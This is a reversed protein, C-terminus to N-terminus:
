CGSSDDSPKNHIIQIVTNIAQDLHDNVVMHEYHQRAEAIERDAKSLRVKTSQSDDRGRHLLREQLTDAKPPLIFIMVADPYATKAQIGGQVDIELLVTRGQSLCADVTDKPTGYFHGFVEAYELFRGQDVRALFEERSLFIYDKGDVEGPAQPRTTASVSLCVNDLRELLRRCITSKGVGSPGSIVIIGPKTQTTNTM